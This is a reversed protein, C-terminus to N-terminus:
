EFIEILYRPNEEVKKIDRLLLSSIRSRDWQSIKKNLNNNSNSYDVFHRQQFKSSLYDMANLLNETMSYHIDFQDESLAEIVCQEIIITPLNLNNQERYRKLLKIINRADPKNTTIYRQQHPNIKFSSGRQWIFDPRVYLNLEKDKKFDNIERGPVVDFDIFMGGAIEFSLTIGKTQKSITAKEGFLDKAVDYVDQYMAELTLQSEKAFAIVIDLDYSSSIATRKVFSGADLPYCVLMGDFAINLKEKVQEKISLARNLYVPDNKLAEETLINRLYRDPDFPIARESDVKYCYYAYGLLGGALGNRLALSITKEYDFNDFTLRDDENHKQWWQRIIEYVVTGAAALAVGILINKQKRRM